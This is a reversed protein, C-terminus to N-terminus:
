GAAIGVKAAARRAGVANQLRLEGRLQAVTFEAIQLGSRGRLDDRRINPTNCMQLTTRFRRHPMPNLHQIRSQCSSLLLNM